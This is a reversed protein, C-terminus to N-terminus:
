RTTCPAVTHAPMTPRMSVPCPAEVPLDAQEAAAAAFALVASLPAGAALMAEAADYDLATGIRDIASM